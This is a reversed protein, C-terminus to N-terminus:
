THIYIYIYIIIYTHTHIRTHTHACILWGKQCKTLWIEGCCALPAWRHRVMSCPVSFHQLLCTNAPCWFSALSQPSARCFHWPRFNEGSKKSFFLPVGHCWHLIIAISPPLLKKPPVEMESAQCIQIGFEIAKGIKVRWVASDGSSLRQRSPLCTRCWGGGTARDRRRCLFGDTSRPPITGSAVCLHNSSNTTEIGKFFIGTM